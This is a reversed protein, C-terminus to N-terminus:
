AAELGSTAARLGGGLRECGIGPPGLGTRSRGCAQPQRHRGRPPAPALKSGAARRQGGAECRGAVEMPFVSDTRRPAAPGPLHPSLEAKGRLSGEDGNDGERGTSDGRAAMM